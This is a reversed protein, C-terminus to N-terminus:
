AMPSAASDRERRRVPWDPLPRRRVAGSLAHREHAHRAGRRAPPAARSGAGRRSAPTPGGDATGLAILRHVNSGQGSTVRGRILRPVIRGSRSRFTDLSRGMRCGAPQVFDPSGKRQGQFHDGSGSRFRSFRATARNEFGEAPSSGAVGEKGHCGPQRPSAQAPGCLVQVHPRCPAGCVEAARRVTRCGGNGVSYGSLVDADRECDSLRARRSSRQRWAVRYDGLACASSCIRTANDCGRRSIDRM